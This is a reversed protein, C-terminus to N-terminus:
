HFLQDLQDLPVFGVGVEFRIRASPEARLSGTYIFTAPVFVQIHTATQEAYFPTGPWLNGTVGSTMEVWGSAESWLIGGGAVCVSVLLHM